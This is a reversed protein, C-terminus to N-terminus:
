GLETELNELRDKVSRWMEFFAGWEVYDASDGLEGMRFRRYFEASPLQYRTEFEQLRHRLDDLERQATAKELAIIKDLSRDVLDSRYGQRYLAELYQLRSLTKESITM